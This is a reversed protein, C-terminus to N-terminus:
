QIRSSKMAFRDLLTDKCPLSQGGSILPNRHNSPTVSGPLMSGTLNCAAFTTVTSSSAFKTFLGGGM